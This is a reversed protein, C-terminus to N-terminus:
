TALLLPLQGAQLQAQRKRQGTAATRAQQAERLRDYEDLLSQLCEQLPTPEQCLEEAASARDEAPEPEGPEFSSDLFTRSDAKVADLSAFLDELGDKPALGSFLMKALSGLADDGALDDLGDGELEGDFQNATHVKSAIYLLAPYQATNRYVLHHVRVPLNQPIRYSRRSAQRVAVTRYCVQLWIITPFDLLDLGTEVLAPNTFLVHVGRAVRDEIWKERQEPKVTVKLVDAQFGSQEALWILRPALDRVGTNTYYVLCRRGEARERSILELLAQEKAYVTPTALAPGSIRVWDGIDTGLKISQDVPQVCTDPYSLLTQMAIGAIRMRQGYSAKNKADEFQRALDNYADLLEADEDVVQVYERYPPLSSAIDELRLFVAVGIAHLLVAPSMGPRERRRVREQGRKTVAGVSNTLDEEGERGADLKTYIYEYVGYREVFRTVEDYRFHDRFEPVFRYLLYFLDSAFGSYLSGSLALCYRSIDALVGAARGQATSEAKMEHCEDCVFLDISGKPYRGALYRAIEYRRLDPHGRRREASRDSLVPQGSGPPTPVVDATTVVTGCCDPCGAARLGAERCAACLCKVKHGELEGPTLPGGDKDVLPRWCDPCCLDTVSRFVQGPTRREVAAPRTRYSLKLQERSCVIFLPSHRSAPQAMAADLQALASPATKSTRSHLVVVRAGPIATRIERAWKRTLHPPCTIFMRRLTLELRLGALAAAATAVYTKGCGMEGDLILGKHTKFAWALARMADAQGGIPRRSLLGNLPILERHAVTYQAPFREVVAQTLADRYRTVFDSLRKGSYSTFTGADVDLVNVSVLLRERERRRGADPDNEVEEVTKQIHGKVLLQGADTHILCNDLYGAALLLALHGRQLPMLPRARVIGAPWLREQLAAHKWASYKGNLAELLADEDVDASEFTLGGAPVARVPLSCEGPEPIEPLARVGRAVDRLYSEVADDRAYSRRRRGVLAVQEYAGYEAEPFKWVRLDDYRGAIYGAGAELRDQPVIYVLLGDPALARDLEKLFKLEYSNDSAAGSDYPPNLWLLSFAGNTLRLRFADGWIAYPFRERCLGARDRQIEVAFPTGGVRQTVAQLAEGEGACADLARIARSDGEPVLMGALRRLAEPPTAYFGAKALGAIRM